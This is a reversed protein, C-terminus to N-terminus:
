AEGVTASSRFRSLIDPGATRVGNMNAEQRKMEEMAKRRREKRLNKDWYDDPRMVVKPKAMHVKVKEPTFVFDDCSRKKKLKVTV